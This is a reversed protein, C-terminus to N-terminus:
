LMPSPVITAAALAEEPTFGADVCLELERVLEMGSGDTGAVIPIGAKHMRAVLDSLKAFSSRFDERTM